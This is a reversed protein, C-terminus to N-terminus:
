HNVKVKERLGPKLQDKAGLYSPTIQHINHTNFYYYMLNTLNIQIYIYNLKKDQIDGLTDIITQYDSHPLEKQEYQDQRTTKDGLLSFYVLDKHQKDFSDYFMVNAAYNQDDTLWDFHPSVLSHYIHNIKLISLQSSDINQLRDWLYNPSRHYCFFNKYHPYKSKFTILFSHLFDLIFAVTHEFQQDNEDLFRYKMSIEFYESSGSVGESIKVDRNVYHTKTLVGEFECQSFDHNFLLLNLKQNQNYTIPLCEQCNDFVVPRQHGMQIVQSTVIGFDAYTLDFGKLFHHLLDNKFEQMMQYFVFAQSSKSNVM